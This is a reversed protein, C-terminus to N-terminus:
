ADHGPPAKKLAHIVRELADLEKETLPTHAATTALVFDRAADAVDELAALRDIM